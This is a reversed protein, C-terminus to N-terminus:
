TKELYSKAEAVVPDEEQPQGSSGDSQQGQLFEERVKDWESEPIAVMERKSGILTYLINELNDRVNNNNESAMKCHIEYKFKLIFSQDSSAVPESNSLM